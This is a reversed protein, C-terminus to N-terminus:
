IRADAAPPITAAPRPMERPIPASSEAAARDVPERRDPVPGLGLVSATVNPEPPLEFVPRGRVAARVFLWVIRLVAMGAIVTLGITAIHRSLFGLLATHWFTAHIVSVWRSYAPRSGNSCRDERESSGLM